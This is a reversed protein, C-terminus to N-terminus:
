CLFSRQNQPLEASAWVLATLFYFILPFFHLHIFRSPLKRATPSSHLTINQGVGPKLPLVNTLEPYWLPGYNKSGISNKLHNLKGNEGLIPMCTKMPNSSFLIASHSTPTVSNYHEKIPTISIVFM